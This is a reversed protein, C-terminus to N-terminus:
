LKFKISLSLKVKVNQGKSKGPTFKTKKIGEIAAEDCGGGIGKLVKVDDVGGTENIYALVFVKGQIGAQKAIAPYKINNYVAKLGGDPAPMQEAFALYPDQPAQGYANQPIALLLVFLIVMRSALRSISNVKDM